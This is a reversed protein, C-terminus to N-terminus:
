SLAIWSDPMRPQPPASGGLTDQDDRSRRDREVVRRVKSEMQALAARVNDDDLETDDQSDDWRGAPDENLKIEGKGPLCAAAVVGVPGLLLGFVFGELGSRGNVNSVYSGFGGCIIAYIWAGVLMWTWLSSIQDM